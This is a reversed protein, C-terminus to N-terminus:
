LPLRNAEDKPKPKVRPAATFTLGVKAAVLVANMPQGRKSVPCRTLVRPESLLQRLGHLMKVKLVAGSVKRKRKKSRVRSM